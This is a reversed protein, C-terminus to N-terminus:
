AEEEPNEGRDTPITANLTQSPRASSARAAECHRFRGPRAGPEQSRTSTLAGLTDPRRAGRDSPRGAHQALTHIVIEVRRLICNINCEHPDRGACSPVVDGILVDKVGKTVEKPYVLASVLDQQHDTGGAITPDDLHPDRVRDALPERSALVASTRARLRGFPAHGHRCPYPETVLFGEVPDLLDIRGGGRHAIDRRRFRDSCRDRAAGRGLSRDGICHVIGPGSPDGPHLDGGGEADAVLTGALPVSSASGRRPGPPPPNDRM